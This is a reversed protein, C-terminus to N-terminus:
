RNFDPPLCSLSLPFHGAPHDTYAPKPGPRWVTEMTKASFPAGERKQARPGHNDPEATQIELLNM